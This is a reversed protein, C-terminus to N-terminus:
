RCCHSDLIVRDLLPLNGTYRPDTKFSLWKAASHSSKTRLSSSVWACGPCHSWPDVALDLGGFNFFVARKMTNLNFNMEL